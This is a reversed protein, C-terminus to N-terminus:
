CGLEVGTVRVFVVHHCTDIRGRDKAAHTCALRSSAKVLVIATIRHDHKRTGLSFIDVM